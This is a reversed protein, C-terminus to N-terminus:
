RSRRQGHDRSDVDKELKIGSEAMKSYYPARAQLPARAPTELLEHGRVEELATTHRANVWQPIPLIRGTEAATKQNAQQAKM